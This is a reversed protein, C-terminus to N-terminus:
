KTLKPMINVQFSNATPYSLGPATQYCRSPSPSTHGSEQVFEEGNPASLLEEEIVGTCCMEQNAPVEPLLFGGASKDSAMTVLLGRGM